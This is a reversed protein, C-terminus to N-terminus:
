TGPLQLWSPNFWKLRRPKSSLPHHIEVNKGLCQKGKLFFFQGQLKISTYVNMYRELQKVLNSSYNVKKKSSVWFLIVSNLFVGFFVSNLTNLFFLDKAYKIQMDFKFPSFIDEVLIASVISSNLKTPLACHGRSGSTVVKFGMTALSFQKSKEFTIVAM